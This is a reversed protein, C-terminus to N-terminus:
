SDQARKLASIEELLELALAAGPLNVDLDRQLRVATMLRTVAIGTFEPLSAATDLPEAIGESVMELVLSEEVGCVECVEHITLTVAEDFVVGRIPNGTAV